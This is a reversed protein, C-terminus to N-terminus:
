HVGLSQLTQEDLAGNGSVGRVDQYRKLAAKTKPGMVGDSPGPDFGAAKLRLQVMRIQARTAQSHTGNSSPSSTAVPELSTAPPTISVPAGPSSVMPSEAQVQSSGWSTDGNNPKLLSCGWLFLPLMAAVSLIKKM